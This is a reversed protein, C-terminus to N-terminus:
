LVLSFIPLNLVSFNLDETLCFGDYVFSFMLVQHFCIHGLMRMCSYLKYASVFCYFLSVIGCFQPFVIHFLLECFFYLYGILM